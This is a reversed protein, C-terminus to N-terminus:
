SEGDEGEWPHPPQWSGDEGTQDHPPVIKYADVMAISALGRLINPWISPKSSAREVRRYGAQRDATYAVVRRIHKQQGQAAVTSYECAAELFAGYFLELSGQAWTERQIQINQLARDILAKDDPVLEDPDAAVKRGVAWGLAASAREDDRYPKDRLARCVNIVTREIDGGETTVDQEALLFDKMAIMADIEDYEHYRGSFGLADFLADAQHQHM